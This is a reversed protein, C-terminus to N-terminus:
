FSNLHVRGLIAAHIHLQSLSVSSVCMCVCKYGPLTISVVAILSTAKLRVQNWRLYHLSLRWCYAKGEEEEATTSHWGHPDRTSSSKILLSILHLASSSLCSFICVHSSFTCLCTPAASSLWKTLSIAWNALAWMHEGVASQYANQQVPKVITWQSYPKAVSTREEETERLLWVSSLAGSM